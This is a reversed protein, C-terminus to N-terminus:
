KGRCLWEWPVKSLDIDLVAPSKRKRVGSTSILASRAAPVCTKSGICRKKELQGPFPEARDERHQSSQPRIGATRPQLTRCTQQVPLDRRALHVLEGLQERAQSLALAHQLRREAPVLPHTSRRRAPGTAVPVWEVAPLVQQVIVSELRVAGSRRTNSAASFAGAGPRAPREVGQLSQRSPILFAAAAAKQQNASTLHKVLDVGANQHALKQAAIGWCNSFWSHAGAPLAPPGSPIVKYSVNRITPPVM